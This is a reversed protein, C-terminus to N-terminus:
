GKIISSIVLSSKRSKEWEKLNCKELLEKSIIKGRWRLKKKTFSIYDLKALKYLRNRDKLPSGIRIM